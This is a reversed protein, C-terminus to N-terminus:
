PVVASALQTVARSVAPGIEDLPLVRSAAGLAAAKAPMGFVFSSAADQAITTWGASRLALLGRAGDEGMGTLLAAVGPARLKACSEFLPDIGPHHLQGAAFPQYRVRGGADVTAQADSRVLLVTDTELRAGEAATQVPRGGRANLWDALGRTFPEDIHQVLLVRARATFALGHLVRALADPGGTSAGLLVIPAELTAPAVTSRRGFRALKAVLRDPDDVTGDPRLAPIRAVDKAGREMATYIDHVRKERDDVLVVITLGRLNASGAISAFIDFTGPSAALLVDPRDDRCRAQLSAPGTAVWALAAPVQELARSLAALEEARAGAIAVRM